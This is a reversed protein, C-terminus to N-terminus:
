PAPQAKRYVTRRGGSGTTVTTEVIMSGDDDLSRVERLYTNEVGRPTARTITTVLKSKDWRSSYTAQVFNGQGVVLSNTTRRGDLGYTLVRGSTLDEITMTSDNQQIVVEQAPPGMGSGGGARGGGGSVVGGPGGRRGGM